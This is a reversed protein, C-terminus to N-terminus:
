VLPPPASIGSTIFYGNAQNWSVKSAYAGGSAGLAGLGPAIVDLYMKTHGLPLALLIGGAIKFLTSSSMATNDKVIPIHRHYKSEQNHRSTTVPVPLPPRRRRENPRPKFRGESFGRSRSANSANSAICLLMLLILPMLPMPPMPPMPSMIIMEIMAMGISRRM